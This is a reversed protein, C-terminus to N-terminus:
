FGTVNIIGSDISLVITGLGSGLTGSLSINTQTVNQLNLNNLGITGSYTYAEFSSSTTTPINLDITGNYMQQILVGNMPLSIRSIISGTYLSVYTNGSLDNLQIEGNTHQVAVTDAMKAITINGSVANVLLTIMSDPMTIVYDVEYLRGRSDQPQETQVTIEQGNDQINVNLDKLHDEADQVSESGVRREGTITIRSINKQGVIQILGSIGNLNLRTQNTYNIEESFIATAKQDTNTIIDDGGLIGCGTMIFTLVVFYLFRFKSHYNPIM